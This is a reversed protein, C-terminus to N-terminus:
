TKPVAATAIAAAALSATTPAGTNAIRWLRFAISGPSPVCSSAAATAAMAATPVEARIFKERRFSVSGHGGNGAAVHIEVRDVFM